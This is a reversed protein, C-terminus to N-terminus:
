LTGNERHWEAAAAEEEAVDKAMEEYVEDDCTPCGFEGTKRGGHKECVAPELYLPCPKTDGCGEVPDEGYADMDNCDDAVQQMLNGIQILQDEVGCEQDCYPPEHFGGGSSYYVHRCTGCKGDAKYTDKM